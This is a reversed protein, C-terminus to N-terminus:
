NEFYLSIKQFENPDSYGEDVTQQVCSDCLESGSEDLYRSPNNCGIVDCIKDQPM